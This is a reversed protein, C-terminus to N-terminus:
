YYYYYYYLVTNTCRILKDRFCDGERSFSTEVSSLTIQASVPTPFGVKWGRPTMQIRRSWDRFTSVDM